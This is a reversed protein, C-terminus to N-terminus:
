FKSYKHTFHLHLLSYKESFITTSCWVGHFLDNLSVKPCLIKQLVLHQTFSIELFTSSASAEYLLSFDRWSLTSVM